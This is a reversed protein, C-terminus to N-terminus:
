ADLQILGRVLLYAALTYAAAVAIRVLNRGLWANLREALRETHQPAMLYGVLPAEVLVFMGIYFGVVIAISAAVGENLQAIDKLAVFPLFGPVINLVIGVVFAVPAGRQLARESWGPAHRETPTRQGLRPLVVATVLLLGAVTFDVIASAGSRSSTTIRTGQLALVIATGIAVTTLLGGALFAALLRAPRPAHLAVAVLALLLPWLASGVALLILELVTSV